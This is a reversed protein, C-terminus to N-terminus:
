EGTVGDAAESLDDLLANLLALEETTPLAEDHRGRHNM